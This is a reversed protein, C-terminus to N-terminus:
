MAWVMEIAAWEGQTDVPRISKLGEAEYRRCIDEVQTTLVGSLILTGRTCAALQPAMDMLPGALINAVVLDCKRNPPKDGWQSLISVNNIAANKHCADVADPDNDMALVHKIGLKAAAIALLGSGAGMDLMMEPMNKKCIREIAELCLQTTAHSGTGFAMGPNLVIDLRDDVPPECFSPRIWLRKGIPIAKWDKQWATEWDDGLANLCINVQPVGSLMAAVVISTRMKQPNDGATFWAVHEAYGTKTDTQLATGAADMSDCLREFVTAKISAVPLRLELWINPSSIREQM